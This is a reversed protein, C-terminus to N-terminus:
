SISTIYLESFELNEFFESRKLYESFESYESFKFYESFESTENYESLPPDCLLVNHHSIIYLPHATVIGCLEVGVVWFGGMNGEIGEYGERNKWIGVKDGGDERNRRCEGYKSM